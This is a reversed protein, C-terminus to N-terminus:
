NKLQRFESWFKDNQQKVQESQKAYYFALSSSQDDNKKNQNYLMRMSEEKSLPATNNPNDRHRKYEDVSGFKKINNYDDATVPIVSEVYAQRLDTFGMGDSNFLSGSSYNGDGGMLSSGSTSSTTDNVGNYTILSQVKKKRKEIEANMNEKTVKGTDVLDEDSKLWDAYGNENPDELKYKNFQKNFWENFDNKNKYDKNKDFFNDLLKNKDQDTLKNYETETKSVPKSKNKFEYIGLIKKYAVSFFLFYKENLGSKDPHTKLVIKKCQRMTQEDLENLDTIGFLNFLDSMNYSDIDLNVNEYSKKDYTAPIHASVNQNFAAKEMEIIPNFANDNGTDRIQIGGKRCVPITTNSKINVFNSIPKNSTIKNKRSM